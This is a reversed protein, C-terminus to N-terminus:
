DSGDSFQLHAQGHMDDQMDNLFDYALYELPVESAVCSSHVPCPEPPTNAGPELLESNCQVVSSSTVVQLPRPAESRVALPDIAGSKASSHRPRRPTTCPSPPVEGLGDLLPQWNVSLGIQDVSELHVAEAVLPYGIELASNLAQKKNGKRSPKEPTFPPHVTIPIPGQLFSHLGVYDGAHVKPLLDNLSARRFPLQEATLKEEHVFFILKKIVCCKIKLPKM